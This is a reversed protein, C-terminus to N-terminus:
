KLNLQNKIKVMEEMAVDNMPRSISKRPKTRKKGLVYILKMMPVTLKM